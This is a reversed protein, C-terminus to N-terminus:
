VDLVRYVVTVRLASGGTLAGSNSIEVETDELPETATLSRGSVVRTPRDTQNLFAATEITALAATTGDYRVVLDDGTGISGFITTGEMHVRVEDVQIGKGAGPAAVLTRATTSLARAQAGTLRVSAIKRDFDVSGEIRHSNQIRTM